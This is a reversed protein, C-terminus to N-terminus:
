LWTCAEVPVSNKSPLGARSVRRKAETVADPISLGELALLVAEGIVDERDEHRPALASVQALVDRGPVQASAALVSGAFPAERQATGRRKRQREVAKALEAAAKAPSAKLALRRARERAARAAMAEPSKRQREYWRAQSATQRGSM